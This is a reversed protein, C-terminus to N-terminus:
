AAYRASRAGTGYSPGAQRDDAIQFRAILTNLRLAQDNLDRCSANTQEVMAANQQTVQDMRNVAENVEGLAAAQESAAKVMTTVMGSVERVRLDIERQTDGTRQVLGVGSAVQASSVQILVKIEKAAKATRGALDRVEQAVVAFGRGADGARAAEVGANLALLNTQFAIEDIVNIIQSIQGSSGKIQEMASVAEGMVTSSQESSQRASEAKAGAERARDSAARVTSTIEDLAAAAEELSAAQTETRRALDDAAGAIERSGSQVTATTESIERLTDALVAISDNFETRLNEYEPPFAQTIRCTLDGKALRELAASLRAIVEAREGDAMSRRAMEDREAEIQHERDAEQQKRNAIRELAAERFTTVAKAMEGIEDKRGEFPVPKSYDGAALVAMYDRMSGLPVIARRRLAYLGAMLSLVAIGAAGYALGTYSTTAEAAATESATQFATAAAVLGLVAKEHTYFAESLATLADNKTAEDGSGLTPIVREKMIKWFVDGKALVDDALRAKLDPQLDSAQWFARRNEYDAALVTTIRKSARAAEAPHVAAELALMYSEVVYLPPPLIDAVLDKGNVIQHYAPGNVRLKQFAATQIAISATLAGGVVIGFVLLSRAINMNM